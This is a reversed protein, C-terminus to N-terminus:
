KYGHFILLSIILNVGILTVILQKLANSAMAGRWVVADEKNVFFGISLMKIGYKVIPSILDRGDKRWYQDKVKQSLM